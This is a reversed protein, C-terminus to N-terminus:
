EIWRSMSALAPVFIFSLLNGSRAATEPHREPEQASPLRKTSASQKIAKHPFSKKM